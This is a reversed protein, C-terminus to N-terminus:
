EAAGHGKERSGRQFYMEGMTRCFNTNILDPPIFIGGTEYTHKSKIYIQLSFNSVGWNDVTSM